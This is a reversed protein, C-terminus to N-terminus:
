NFLLVNDFEMCEGIENWYELIRESPYVVFRGRRWIGLNRFNREVADATSAKTEGSRLIMYPCFEMFLPVGASWLDSGGRILHVEHGQVDAWVAGVSQGPLLKSVLGDLKALRVSSVTRRSEELYEPGNGTENKMRVRHDGSNDSCHELEFEGERDSVGGSFVVSQSELENVRINESLVSLNQADPEIFLCSRCVRLRLCSIGIVGINAGADVLVKENCKEDRERLWAFFKNIEHKEFAGEVFLPRSIYRDWTFVRFVGQSTKVQVSDSLRQLVKWRVARIVWMLASLENRIKSRILRSVATLM